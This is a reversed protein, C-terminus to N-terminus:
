TLKGVIFNYMNEIDQSIEQPPILDIYAQLKQPCLGDPANILPDITDKVALRRIGDNDGSDNAALHDAQALGPGNIECLKGHHDLATHSLLYNKIERRKWALLHVSVNRGQPWHIGNIQERYQQGRVKVGSQPDIDLTAEDRDCILFVQTTALDCEM